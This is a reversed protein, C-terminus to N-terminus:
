RAWRSWRTTSAPSRWGSCRSRRRWRAPSPPSPSTQARRRRGGEAGRLAGALLLDGIGPNFRSLVIGVRRGIGTVNPPIRDTPCPTPRATRHLHAARAAAIVVRPAAPPQEVYGTVELDFGTMSPMKRPKALLRMKGVNLDRLIQAGIGYNRLDVKARSRRSPRDVARM